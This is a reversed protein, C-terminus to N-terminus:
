RRPRARSGAVVAHEGGAREAVARIGAGGEDGGMLAVADSVLATAPGDALRYYVLKGRRRPLVLGAARLLRLQHSTLSKSAEAVIALDCVCLERDEAGTVSRLALLIRLRTPNSLLSLLESVSALHDADPMQRRAAQVARLHVVDV